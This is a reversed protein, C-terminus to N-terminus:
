ENLLSGIKMFKEGASKESLRTMGSLMSEDDGPGEVFKRWEDAFTNAFEGDINSVIQDIPQTYSLRTCADLLKDPGYQESSLLDHLNDPMPAGCEVACRRFMEQLPGCVAFGGCGDASEKLTELCFQVIEKGDVESLAFRLLADGFHLLSFNQLSPQYRCTFLRRYKRQLELGQWAYDVTLARLHDMTSEPLPKLHLLPRFLLVM